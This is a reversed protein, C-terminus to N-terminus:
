QRTCLFTEKSFYASVTNCNSFNAEENSYSILSSSSVSEEFNFFITPLFLFRVLILFQILCSNLYSFSTFTNLILYKWGPFSLIVFFEFKSSELNVIPVPNPSPFHVGLSKIHPPLEVYKFESIHIPAKLNSSGGLKWLLYFARLRWIM